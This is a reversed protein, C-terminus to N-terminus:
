RQAVALLSGGAPFSLGRRILARELSLVRELTGDLSATARYETEPDYPEDSPRKMLRSLAFLPLLLSVFSTVRVPHFGAREVKGVLERRTYRRVHRAYDDAASWLRPHQPVTIIVGGGPRTARHLEDLVQVDEDIHELVDFAGIVDFEETFPLARGDIQYLPVKGLREAAVDLGSRFLESGSVALGPMAERVGGLVFGSGCGLEHFSRAAPFYRKLAHVVLRNRSRFWFSKPELRALLEFSHRDFAEAESPPEVAFSRFGDVVPPESGCAPCRWSSAEFDDGCSLCRHM